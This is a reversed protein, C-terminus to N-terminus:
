DGRSFDVSKIAVDRVRQLPDVLFNIFDRFFGSFVVIGAFQQKPVHFIELIIQNRQLRLQLHTEM